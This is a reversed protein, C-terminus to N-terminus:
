ISSPLRAEGSWDRCGPKPYEPMAQVPFTEASAARLRTPDSLDFLELELPDTVGSKVVLAENRVGITTLYHRMAERPVRYAPGTKALIWVRRQGRFRDLDRLFARTDDRSCQGLHYDDRQLGFRPGYFIASSNALFMVYVADGARRNAQLHAYIPGYHDVRAPIGADILALFPPVLTALAITMTAAKHRSREALWGAGAAAALLASPVLFVILRQRFPYQHATAALMTLAIPAAILLAADRRQKWLVAIGILALLAFLWPLPYRLTWPDGFLATFQQWLWRTVTSFTPPLPLFGGRWFDQMFARTAPTMSRSGVIVAIISSLAWVPVTLLLVRQTRRDREILWLIALAAGLGAMVIASAQSFWIVILGALGAALLGVTTRDRQRLDLALLTLAITVTADVGYQKVEASYRILALGLAFMAVALPVAVGCLMREALRRFLLLGAIGSLLSFLWLTREGSGFALTSLKVVALFGLPAVQDFALPHTLLEDLSRALINRTLAIEDLWLTGDALWQWLRLVVGLFLFVLVARRLTSEETM